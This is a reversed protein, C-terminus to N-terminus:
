RWLGGWKSRWANNFSSQWGTETALSPELESWFVTAHPRMGSTAHDLSNFAVKTKYPNGSVPDSNTKDYCSVLFLAISYPTASSLATMCELEDLITRDRVVFRVTHTDAIGFTNTDILVSDVLTALTTFPPTWVDNFIGTTFTQTPPYHLAGTQCTDMLYAYIYGTCGNSDVANKAVVYYVLSDIRAANGEAVNLSEVYSASNITDSWMCSRWIKFTDTAADVVTVAVLMTDASAVSSNGTTSSRAASWSTSNTKGGYGDNQLNLTFSDAFASSVVILLIAIYRM